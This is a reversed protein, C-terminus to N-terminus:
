LLVAGEIESCAQQYMTSQLLSRLWHYKHMCKLTDVPKCCNCLQDGAETHSNDEAKGDPNNSDGKLKMAM